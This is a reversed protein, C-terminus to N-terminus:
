ELRTIRFKLDMKKDAGLAKIEKIQVRDFTEPLLLSAKRSVTEPVRASKYRTM